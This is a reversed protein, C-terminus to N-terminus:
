YFPNFDLSKVKEIKYFRLIRKLFKFKKMEEGKLLLVSPPPLKRRGIELIIDKVSINGDSPFRILLANKGEFKMFLANGTEDLPVVEGKYGHPIHFLVFVLIISFAYSIYRLLGGGLLHIAVFGSYYLCLYYGPVSPLFILSPGRPLLFEVVSFSIKVLFCPLWFFDWSFKPLIFSLISAIFSGPLILFSYFPVFFLNSLFGMISFLGFSHAIPPFTGFMCFSTVFFLDILYQLIKKFFSGEENSIRLPNELYLALFFVASFSLQFSLEFALNPSIALMIFGAFSVINVFSYREMNILSLFFLITMIFARTASPSGGTIGWYLLMVPFTLISPVTYPNMRKLLFLFLLSIRRMIFFSFLTLAGFHLGSVALLHSIGLYSFANRINQPIRRKEGTLLGAIVAGKETDPILILLKKKIGETLGEGELSAPIVNKRKFCKKRFGKMYLSREFPKQLELNHTECRVFAYGHLDPDLSDDYFVLRESKIGFYGEAIPMIKGRFADKSNEDGLDTLISYFTLFHIIVVLASSIFVALNRRIIFFLLLLLFIESILTYFNSAGDKIFFFESTIFISLISSLFLYFAPAREPTSRM